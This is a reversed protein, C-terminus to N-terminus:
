TLTDHVTTVVEPPLDDEDLDDGLYKGVLYRADGGPVGLAEAMQESTTAM